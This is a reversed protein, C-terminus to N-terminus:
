VRSGNYVFKQRWGVHFTKRRFARLGTCGAHCIICWKFWIQTYIATFGEFHWYMVDYKKISIKTRLRFGRGMTFLNRGDVLTSLKAGFLSKSWHVWCSLHYVMQVLNTHLNCYVRGFTLVHCWLKKISMKTRRRFGWGMELFHIYIATFWETVLASLIVFVTICWQFLNTHLNCYIRWFTLVHCHTPNPAKRLHHGGEVM